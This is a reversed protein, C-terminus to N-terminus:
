REVHGRGEGHQGTLQIGLRYAILGAAGGGATTQYVAAIRTIPPAEPVLSPSDRQAGSSPTATSM